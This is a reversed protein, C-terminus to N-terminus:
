GVAKALAELQAAEFLPGVEDLAPYAHPFPPQHYTRGLADIGNFGFELRRAQPANTGVEGIVSDVSLTVKSTWSRRYDGTGVNPGPGTGAIHPAGPKHTGTSAKRMVTTKLIGAYTRTVAVVEAQVKIPVTRIFAAVVFADEMSAGIM